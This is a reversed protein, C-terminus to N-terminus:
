VTHQRVLVMTWHATARGSVFVARKAFPFLLIIVLLFPIPHMGYVFVAAVIGCVWQDPATGLVLERSDNIHMRSQAKRYLGNSNEKGLYVDEDVMVM